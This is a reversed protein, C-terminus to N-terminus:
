YESLEQDLDELVDHMRDYWDEVCQHALEKVEEPSLAMYEYYYGGSDITRTERYVLGCGILNQLARYATSRERGIIEGLEEATLPGEKMLAKYAGLDLDKLGLVCKMIDDCELNRKLMESISKVM